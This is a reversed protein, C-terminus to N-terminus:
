LTCVNPNMSQMLWVTSLQGYGLKAVAQYQLQDEVMDFFVDNPQIPHWGQVSQMLTEEEIPFPPDWQLLGTASSASGHEYIQAM